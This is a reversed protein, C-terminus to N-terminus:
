GSCASWSRRAPMTTARRATGQSRSSWDPDGTCVPFEAAWDSMTPSWAVRLLSLRGSGVAYAYGGGKPLTGPAVAVGNLTHQESRNTSRMIFANRAALYARLPTSGGYDAGLLSQTGVLLVVGYKRGIRVVNEMRGIFNDEKLVPDNALRNFEDLIWVYGPFSRCPRIERVGHATSAEEPRMQRLEGGAAAVLTPKLLSRVKILAEVARLQRMVGHPGAEPWDAIRNLTPSSGGEPDGDGFLVKWVGSHRKAMAIAELLATKGSGPDGTVLGSRAGVEDVAVYEAEGTGDAHLGVPIRGDHYRPGGYPVGDKLVDRTVITLWARGEDDEADNDGSGYREM